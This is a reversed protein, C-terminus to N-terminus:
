ARLGYLRVTFGPPLLEPEAPATAPFWTMNASPVSVSPLYAVDEPFVM